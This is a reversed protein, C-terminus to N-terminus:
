TGNVSYGSIATLEGEGAERRGRGGWIGERDVEHCASEETSQDAKCRQYGVTPSHVVRAQRGGQSEEPANPPPTGPSSWSVNKVRRRRGREAETERLTGEVQFAPRQQRLRDTQSPHRGRRCKHGFARPLDLQRRGGGQKAAREHAQCDQGTLGGPGEVAKRSHGIKSSDQHTM